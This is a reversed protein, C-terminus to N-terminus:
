DGREGGAPGSRQSAYHDDNRNPKRRPLSRDIERAMARDTGKDDYGGSGASHRDFPPDLPPGVAARPRKRSRSVVRASYAGAVPQRDRGMAHVDYGRGGDRATGRASDYPPEGRYSGGTRASDSGAYVDPRQYSGPRTDFSAQRGYDPDCIMQSQTAALIRGAFMKHLDMLGQKGQVRLHTTGQIGHKMTVPGVKLAGGEEEELTWDSAGKLDLLCMLCQLAGTDETMLFNTDGTSISGQTVKTVWECKMESEVRM